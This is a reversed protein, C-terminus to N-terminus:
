APSLLMESDYGRSDIKRKRLLELFTSALGEVAPSLYYDIHLKGIQGDM